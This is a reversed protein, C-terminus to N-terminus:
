LDLQFGGALMVNEVNSAIYYKNFTNSFSMEFFLRGTSIRKAANLTVTYEVDHLFRDRVNVVFYDKNHEIRQLLLGMEFDEDRRRISLHDSNAGPGIGAGVVQGNNTYGQLNVVHQYFTPTARWRYSHERSLNTHEYVLIIEKNKKTNWRKEFGITYARSNEPEVLLFRLRSGHFDNKAFETYARFGANKIKWELTISAMQDFTDNPSLTDGAKVGSDFIYLTSFVDEPEFFRTQKYLVKNFGVTLEPLFKPSIAFTLANFFRNDNDSNDDFYESEFLVGALYNAEIRAFTSKKFKLEPTLSLRMMPFGGAQRSLLIPNFISPGLSYNQTGVSAEFSDWSLKVESQGPHFNVFADRGYRQVWDIKGIVNYPYAFENGALVSDPPLYYASNSSFFVVPHFTYTLRGIKGSIGGHLESTFDRGKWVAGDNYGRPYGFNQTAKLLPDLIEFSSSAEGYISPYLALRSSDFKDILDTPQGPISVQAFLGSVGAIIYSFLILKKM